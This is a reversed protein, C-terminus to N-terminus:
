EYSALLAELERQRPLLKTRYRWTSAIFIGAVILPVIAFAPLLIEDGAKGAARLQHVVLPLMALTALQLTAVLKYRSRELRNEDLLARVSAGISVTYDPHAMRHRRYQRAMVWWGLWPLVFLPIVAWERSFDVAKGAPQARLAHVVLQGTIALLATGVLALFVVIGRHRKKLDTVFHMKQEELQAPSPRNHPSRWMSEIDAFNM